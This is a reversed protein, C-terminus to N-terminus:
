IPRGQVYHGYVTTLISVNVLTMILAMAIAFVFGLPAFIYISASTIVQLLLQVGILVLFLIIATGASGKTADFSASFTLKEGIAAAPLVPLLRFLLVGIGIVAPVLLILSFIPSGIAAAVGAIVFSALMWFLIMFLGLLLGMGFYALVRDVHFKPIWGTPYEELLVFRHWSVFVWMEVAIFIIISLLLAGVFGGSPVYGASRQIQELQGFQGWMLATVCALGILVPVLAIRVAWGLNRLVMNLSHSFIKWGTV